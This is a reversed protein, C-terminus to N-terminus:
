ILNQWSMSLIYPLTLHIQADEFLLVMTLHFMGAGIAQYFIVSLFHCLQPQKKDVANRCVGSDACDRYRYFGQRFMHVFFCGEAMGKRDTIKILCNTGTHEMKRHHQQKFIRLYM